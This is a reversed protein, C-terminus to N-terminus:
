CAAAPSAAATSDIASGNANLQMVGKDQGNRETWSMGKAFVTEPDAVRDGAATVPTPLILAATLLFGALWAISIWNKM